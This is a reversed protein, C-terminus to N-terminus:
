SVGEQPRHRPRPRIPLGRLWLTIGHRRIRLAGIASAVAAALQARPGAAVPEGRLTADFVAGDATTLRVAISLRDDAGAGPEPVVLDYHGDTGHFPSVYMQKDVRARGTADPQVLYAHRDGYTNHVEAVTAALRGRADRCWFVSIPNFCYGFARPQAAMLVRGGTIDIGHRALFAEVNSRISRDPDGLHDRAEFRGAVFGAVRGRRPLRDLDVVWHHSTHTFRHKVPDRRTHTLTTRYVRPKRPAAPAGPWAFGLRAAARAGSRAGDEHFGWGQWAGAFALRDSDLEGVRRQAAVSSPTYIPHEYDMTALVQDRDVLDAGGLTVLYRTDTPLRMLRTLDYSVTVGTRDAREMQNWSARARPSRPLLSTDTHLQAVNRSYPMAGLVEQQVATPEALMALAQGPHVALVVKDFVDTRGDADTVEIGHATALVSTVLSDLRIDGGAATVVSAIRAVYERSGGTVTRWQPSGFVGLMGHHQLFEFLYRAPYDLALTPDCSWVAAVLPQMFHRRFYGSFRGRDLFAGLTEDGQGALTGDPRAAPAALLARARRHFRPVETLM